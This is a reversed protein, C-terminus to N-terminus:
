SIRVRGNDNSPSVAAVEIPALGMKSRTHNLERNQYAAFAATIDKGVSEVKRKGAVRYRLYFGAVKGEPPVPRGRVITVPVFKGFKDKDRIRAVFVVKAEM